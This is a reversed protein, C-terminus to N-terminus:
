ESFPKTLSHQKFAMLIGGTQPNFIPAYRFVLYYVFTPLLLLLLYRHEALKRWSRALESRRIAAMSRLRSTVAAITM